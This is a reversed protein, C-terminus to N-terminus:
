VATIQRGKHLVVPLLFGTLNGDANSQEDRRHHTSATANRPRAELHRLTGRTRPTTLTGDTPGEREFLVRMKKAHLFWKGCLFWMDVAVVVEWSVPWVMVLRDVVEGVVLGAV